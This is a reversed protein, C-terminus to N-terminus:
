LKKMFSKKILFFIINAPGLHLIRHVADQNTQRTKVYHEDGGGNEHEPHGADVGVTNDHPSYDQGSMSPPPCGQQRIPQPSHGQIVMVM